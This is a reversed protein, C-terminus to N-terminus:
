KTFVCEIVPMRCNIVTYSMRENISSKEKCFRIYHRGAVHRETINTFLTLADAVTVHGRGDILQVALAVAASTLLVRNGSHQSM